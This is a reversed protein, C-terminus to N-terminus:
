VATWSTRADAALGRSRQTDFANDMWGATVPWSSADLTAESWPTPGATTPSFVVWGVSSSITAEALAKAANAINTRATTQVRMDGNLQSGIDADCPGLYIRGRRRAPPQGSVLDARYSMCVAVENPFSVGSGPTLTFSDELFPTRPEGDSLDYWKTTATTLVTGALYVDIAAYFTELATQASPATAVPDTSGFHWTNTAADRPIPSSANPMTVICRLVTM